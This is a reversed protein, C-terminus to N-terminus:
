TYRGQATIVDIQLTKAIEKWANQKKRLDKYDRMSKDYLVPYHQVENMLEEDTVNDNVQAM